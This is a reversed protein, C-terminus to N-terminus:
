LDGAQPPETNKQRLVLAEESLFHTREQEHKLQDKTKRNSDQLSEVQKCLEALQMNLTELQSHAASAKAEADAKDAISADLLVKLDALEPANSTAHAGLEPVTYPIIVTKAAQLAEELNWHKVDLDEFGRRVDVMAADSMKRSALSSELYSAMQSFVDLELVEYEPDTGVDIHVVSTSPAPRPTPQAQSAIEILLRAREKIEVNLADLTNKSTLMEKQLQVRLNQIEHTLAAIVDQNALGSSHPTSSPNSSAQSPDPPFAPSISDSSAESDASAPQLGQAHALQRQLRTVQVEHITKTMVHISHNQKLHKKSRRLKNELEKIKKNQQYIMAEMQGSTLGTHHGIPTFDGIELFPLNPVPPIRASAQPLQTQTNPLTPPITLDIVYQERLSSSYSTSAPPALPPGSKPLDLRAPTPSNSSHSHILSPRTFHVEVGGSKSSDSPPYSLTTEQLQAEPDVEDEDEELAFWDIAMQSDSQDGAIVDERQGSDPKSSPLYQLTSESSPMPIPTPGEDPQPIPSPGGESTNPSDELVPVSPPSPAWPILKTLHDQLVTTTINRRTEPAVQPLLGAPTRITPQSLLSLSSTVPIAGTAETMTSSEDAITDAGNSTVEASFASQSASTNTAADKKPTFTSNVAKTSM